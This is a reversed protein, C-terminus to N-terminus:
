KRDMQLSIRFCLNIAKFLDDVVVKYQEMLDDRCATDQVNGVAIDFLVRAANASLIADSHSQRYDVSGTQNFLRDAQAQSSSRGETREQKCGNDVQSKRDRSAPERDNIENERKGLDTERQELEIQRKELETESRDLVAKRHSLDAERDKLEIESGDLAAKRASFSAERDGMETEGNDLATARNELETQRDDLGAERDQLEAEVSDLVSEHDKLTAYRGNLTTERDRLNAERDEFASARDSLKTERDELGAENAKLETERSNLVSERDKLTAERSELASERNSLDTERSDLGADPDKAETNPSDLDAARDKVESRPSNLNANGHSLNYRMVGTKSKVRRGDGDGDADDAGGKTPAEAAKRKGGIRSKVRREEGEGGDGNADDTGGSTPVEACKRNGGTRKPTLGNPLPVCPDDGIQFKELSNPNNKIYDEIKKSKIAKKIGFVFCVVGCQLMQMQPSKESLRTTFLKNTSAWVTKPTFKVLPMLHTTVLSIEEPSCRSLFKGKIEAQVRQGLDEWDFSPTSSTEEAM